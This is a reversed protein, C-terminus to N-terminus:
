FNELPMSKVNVFSTLSSQSLLSAPQGLWTGPVTSQALQSSWDSSLTTIFSCSGLLKVSNPLKQSYFVKATATFFLPLPHHQFNTIKLLLTLILLSIVWYSGSLFPPWLSLPLCQCCHHHYWKYSVKGANDWKVRLMLAIGGRKKRRKKRKEEGKGEWEKGEDSANKSCIHWM